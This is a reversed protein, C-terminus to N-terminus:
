LALKKQQKKACNSNNQAKTSFLFREELAEVVAVFMLLSVDVRSFKQAASLLTFFIMENIIMKSARFFMIVGM